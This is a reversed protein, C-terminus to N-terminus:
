LGLLAKTAVDASGLSQGGTLISGSRGGPGAALARRRRELAIADIDKPQAEKMRAVAEAQRAQDEQALGEAADRGQDRVHVAGSRIPALGATVLPFMYGAARLPDERVGRWLDQAGGSVKDMTEDVFNDLGSGGGGSM